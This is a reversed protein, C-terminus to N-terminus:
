EVEGRRMLQRLYYVAVGSLLLVAVLAVATGQSFSASQFALQFSYIGLVEYQPEVNNGRMLFIQVFVNFDWIVSLTAVLQFVPKIVPFVVNTFIGLPGAGDLRAAEVLEKPVQTLAAYLTVAVFPIAGWVVVAAIVTFGQWTELFWNHGRFDLGPIRSLLNNFLGYESDSLWRFISTAVIVPMAWATILAFTVLLRVWASMRQMILAILLGLSMTLVVCVVMFVVTKLTVGWFHSDSFINTFQDFGVWDPADGSWLHRRRYDQFSMVVTRFLPYFYVAAIALLAPLVLAYPLIGRGHGPDPRRRQRVPPPVVGSDGGAASGATAGPPSAEPPRDTTPASM